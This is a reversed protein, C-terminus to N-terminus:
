LEGHLPKSAERGVGDARVAALAFLKAEAIDADLELGEHAVVALATVLGNAM